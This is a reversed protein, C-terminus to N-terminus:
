DLINIIYDIRTTASQIIAAIRKKDLYKSEFSEFDKKIIEKANTLKEKTLWDFDKVLKLQDLPNSKFPKSVINDFPTIDETIKDFGFSGGNDYIIFANSFELSNVDRIFGFNNLHRDENAIIFDLVVMKEIHKDVNKIGLQKCCRLFYSLSNESNKKISTQTIQYATVLEKQEDIFDECECYPYDKDFLM